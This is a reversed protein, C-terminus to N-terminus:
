RVIARQIRASPAPPCLLRDFHAKVVRHCECSAAELAKRNLIIIRKHGYDILGAKQLAGAVITVTPLRVGLMM